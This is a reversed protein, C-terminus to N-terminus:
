IGATSDKKDFITDNVLEAPINNAIIWNKFLRFIDKDSSIAGNKIFIKLHM